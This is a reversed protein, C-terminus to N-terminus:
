LEPGDETKAKAVPAKKAAKTATKKKPAKKVPEPNDFSDNLANIDAKVITQKEGKGYHGATVAAGVTKFAPSMDSSQVGPVGHLIAKDDISAGNLSLPKSDEGRLVVGTKTTLESKTADLPTLTIVPHYPVGSLTTDSATVPATAIVNSLKAKEFTFGDKNTAPVGDSSLNFSEITSNDISNLHKNDLRGNILTSDIIATEQGATAIVKNLKSSSISVKKDTSKTVRSTKVQSNAIKGNAVAVNDLTSNKITNEDLDLDTNNKVVSNSIYGGAPADSQVGTESNIIKSDNIFGKSWHLKSGDIELNRASVSKGLSVDSKGTIVGNPLHKGGFEFTSGKEVYLPVNVGDEAMTKLVNAAHTTTPVLQGLEANAAVTQAKDDVGTIELKGHTFTVPQNAAFTSDKDIKFDGKVYDKLVPKKTVVKTATKKASEKTENIKTTKEVM